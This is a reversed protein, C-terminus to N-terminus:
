KIDSQDGFVSRSRYLCLFLLVDSLHVPGREEAHIQRTQEQTIGFWISILSVLNIYMHLFLQMMQFISLGGREEVHLM